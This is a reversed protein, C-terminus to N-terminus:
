SCSCGSEARQRMEAIYRHKNAQRLARASPTFYGHSQLFQLQIQCWAPESPPNAGNLAKREDYLAHSRTWFDERGLCDLDADSIIEELHTHPRQPIRTVEILGRVITIEDPSYGFKPLVQTAIRISATEHDNFQETFGIDHFYAGTLLLALASGSVGELAALRETAVAVDDRTHWLSHYTLRPSLEQELRRLAYSRAQEFDFSNHM